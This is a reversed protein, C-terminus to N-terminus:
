EPVIRNNNVVEYICGVVVVVTQPVRGAKEIMCTMMEGVLMMMMIGRGGM